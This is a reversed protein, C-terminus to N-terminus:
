SQFYLKFSFKSYIHNTKRKSRHQIHGEYNWIELNYAKELDFFATIVHHRCVFGDRIFAELQVLQDTTSQNQQFGSQYKSIIQHKKM